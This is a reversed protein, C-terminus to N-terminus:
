EHLLLRMPEEARFVQARLVAVSVVCSALLPLQQFWFMSYVQIKASYCNKISIYGLYQMTYVGLM